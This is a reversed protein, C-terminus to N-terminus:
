VFINKVTKPIKITFITKDEDNSIFSVKGQLYKETLLKISYTGLGRNTGKTSFNKQFIQSKINEPIVAENKISIIITDNENKAIIEVIQNIISAELANKLLNLIVRRLLIKSTIIKNDSLQNHFIIEKGIAVNLYKINVIVEIILDTLDIEKYDPILNNNEAAVLDKQAQIEELLDFSAKKVEVLLNKLEDPTLDSTSDTLYDLVGAIGGATNLVDHFFIRELAEKRKKDSIDELIIVTYIKGTIEVPYCTVLLNYANDADKTLINCEMVTKQLLLKCKEIAQFAGCYKCYESTGCGYDTKDSNQCQLIEGPRFSLIQEPTLGLNTFLPKNYFVFQNFENLLGAMNPLIEFIKQIENNILLYNFENKIKGLKERHYLQNNM